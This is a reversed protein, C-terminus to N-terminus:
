SEFITLQEDTDNKYSKLISLTNKWVDAKLLEFAMAFLGERPPLDKWKNSSINQSGSSVIITACYEATHYKHFVSVMYGHFQTHSPNNLIQELLNKYKDETNNDSDIRSSIFDESIKHVTVQYDQMNM